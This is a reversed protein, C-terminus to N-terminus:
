SEQSKRYVGYCAAHVGLALHRDANLIVARYRQAFACVGIYNGCLCLGIDIAQITQLIEFLMRYLCRLRQLLMRLSGESGM